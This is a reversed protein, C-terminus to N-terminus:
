ETECRKLCLKPKCANQRWAAHLMVWSKSSVTSGNNITRFSTLSVLIEEQSWRPSSTRPQTFDDYRVINQELYFNARERLGRTEGYAFNSCNCARPFNSFKCQNGIKKKGNGLLLVATIHVTRTAPVVLQKILYLHFYIYFHGRHLWGLWMENQSSRKERELDFRFSALRIVPLLIQNPVPSFYQWPERYSCRLWAIAKWSVLLIRLLLM